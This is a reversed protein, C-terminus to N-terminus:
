QEPSFGSSMSGSKGVLSPELSLPLNGNNGDVVSDVVDLVVCCGVDESIGVM